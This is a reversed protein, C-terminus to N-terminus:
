GMYVVEEEDSGDFVVDIGFYCDGFNGIGLIICFFDNVWKDVVM